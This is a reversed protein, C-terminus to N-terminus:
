RNLKNLLDLIVWGGAWQIWFFSFGVRRGVIDLAWGVRGSFLPIGYKTPGSFVPMATNLPCTPPGM